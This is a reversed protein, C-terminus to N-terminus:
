ANIDMFFGDNECFAEIVFRSGLRFGTVFADEENFQEVEEKCDKYKEFTELEKGELMASLKEENKNLCRLADDYQTGRHYQKCSPNINGYYLEELINRM